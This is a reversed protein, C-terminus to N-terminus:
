SIEVLRLVAMGLSILKSTVATAVFFLSMFILHITNITITSRTANIAIERKTGFCKVSSPFIEVKLDFPSTTGGTDVVGEVIM